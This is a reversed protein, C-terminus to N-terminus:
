AEGVVALAARATPERRESACKPLRRLPLRIIVPKDPGPLLLIIALDRDTALREAAPLRGRQGKERM